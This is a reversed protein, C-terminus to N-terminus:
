TSEGERPRAEPKRRYIKGGAAMFTEACISAGNNITVYVINRKNKRCWYVLGWHPPYDNLEVVWVPEGDMERLEELTLPTNPPSQHRQKDVCCLPCEKCRDIPEDQGDYCQYACGDGDPKYCPMASLLATIGDEGGYMDWAQQLDTIEEPTLGTDEYRSLRARIEAMAWLARYLIGLVGEVEDVGYYLWDTLLDSLEEDNLPPPEAGLTEAASRILDCVSFEDDPGNRYWTWGDKIYVQNFALQVMDMEFANDTTLRKM